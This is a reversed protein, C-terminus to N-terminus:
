PDPFGSHFRRSHAVAQVSYDADEDIGTVTDTYAICRKSIFLGDHDVAGGKGGVGLLSLLGPRAVLHEPSVMPMCLRRDVAPCDAVVTKLSDVVVM